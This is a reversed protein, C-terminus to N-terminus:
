ILYDNWSGFQEIIEGRPISLAAVAAGTLVANWASDTGGQVVWPSAVLWAGLLVNLLRAPRAIESFAIVAWTVILAGTLFANNAATGDYGLAVPSAMLWIGLAASALLTWPVNNLDLAAIVRAAASRRRWTSAETVVVGPLTADSRLKGGVWFTRWLPQGERRAAMVFQGMAVVEDLAPSIMILMAAATILCLACWAGVAVPQLIVLVISVIGLPVVLVGFLVVM